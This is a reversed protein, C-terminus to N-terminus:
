ASMRLRPGDSSLEDSSQEDSVFSSELAPVANRVSVEVESIDDKDAIFKMYEHFDPAHRLLKGLRPGAFLHEFSPDEGHRSIYLMLLHELEHYTYVENGARWHRHFVQSAKTAFLRVSVSAHSRTLEAILAPLHDRALTYNIEDLLHRLPGHLRFSRPFTFDVSRLCARLQTLPLYDHQRAAQVFKFLEGKPIWRFGKEWLLDHIAQRCPRSQQYAEAFAILLVSQTSGAASMFYFFPTEYDYVKMNSDYKLNFRARLAEILHGLDTPHRRILDALGHHCLSAIRQNKLSLYALAKMVRSLVMVAQKMTLRPALASFFWNLFHIRAPHVPAGLDNSVSKQVHECLTAHIAQIHRRSLDSLDMWSEDAKVMFGVSLTKQIKRVKKEAPSKSM